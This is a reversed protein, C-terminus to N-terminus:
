FRLRLIKFIKFYRQGLYTINFQFIVSSKHIMVSFASAISSSFSVQVQFIVYPIQNIKMPVRSLRFTQM